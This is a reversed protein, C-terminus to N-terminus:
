DPNTFDSLFALNAQYPVPRSSRIHAMLSSVMPNTRYGMEEATRLVKERTEDSIRPHGKLALSVTMTSVGLEQAITKM